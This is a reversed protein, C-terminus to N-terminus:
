GYWCILPELYYKKQLKGEFFAAEVDMGRARWGISDWFFLILAIVIRISADTADPSFKETYDVGPIQMYGKSVCRAKYRTSGDTENKKKFVMKTKILKRNLKSM